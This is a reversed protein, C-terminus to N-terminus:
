VTQLVSPGTLTKMTIGYQHLCFGSWHFCQDLLLIEKSGKKMGKEEKHSMCKVLSDIKATVEVPAYNLDFYAPSVAIKEDLSPIGTVTRGVFQDAAKEYHIYKDKVAGMSWCARLCISGMPPSVKCGSSVLTIAGKRTSHSGLDGPQAGLLEFTDKNGELIKQFVKLFLDYQIIFHNICHIL